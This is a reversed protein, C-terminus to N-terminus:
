LGEKVIVDFIIKKIQNVTTNWLPKTSLETEVQKIIEYLSYSEHEKVWRNFAIKHRQEDTMSDGDM